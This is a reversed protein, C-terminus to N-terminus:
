KEEQKKTLIVACVNILLEYPKKAIYANAKEFTKFTKQSVAYGGLCIHIKEKEDKVLAFVSEKAVMFRTADNQENKKEM